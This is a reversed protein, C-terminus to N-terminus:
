PGGSSTCTTADYGRGAFDAAFVRQTLFDAEDQSLPNGAACNGLFNTDDVVVHLTQALHVELGARSQLVLLSGWGADASPDWGPALLVYATNASAPATPYPESSAGPVVPAPFNVAQWHAAAVVLPVPASPPYANDLIVVTSPTDCGTALAVVLFLRALAGAGRRSTPRSRPLRSPNVLNM